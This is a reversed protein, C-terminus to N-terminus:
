VQIRGGMLECLRQSIVLGLGSGGYRRSISEDTQSFPLFLDGVSEPSIGIGTDQVLFRLRVCRTDRDHSSALQHVRLLIRGSPTFKIANGLLNNLIQILRSADGVLFRPLAPDIDTVLQLGKQHAALAFLDTSSELLAQLEFEEPALEMQRAEIKSFDLIDNLLSMLAASSQHIRKMYAAARHPMDPLEMGMASLGIVANMPTRIEHSMRALFESKAMNAEVAARTAEKLAQERTIRETVEHNVGVMRVAKGNEDFATHAGAKIFHTSGDSPWVVRFVYEYDREGRLAAALAEGAGARDEPHVASSWAEYAGGFDEAKLGYLRYMVDDWVLVDEPIYWDWVGVIGASAPPRM